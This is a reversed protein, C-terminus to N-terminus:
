FSPLVSFSIFHLSEVNHGLKDCTKFFNSLKCAHTKVNCMLGITGPPSLIRGGGGM